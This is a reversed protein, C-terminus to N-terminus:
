QEDRWRAARAVTTSVADEINQPSGGALGAALGAAFASLPAAPRAVNMAVERALDLIQAIPLDHDLGLERRIAEAWETLAEAPLTRDSM